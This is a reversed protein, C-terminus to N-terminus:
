PRKLLINFEDDEEELIRALQKNETVEILFKKAEDRSLKRITRAFETDDIDLLCELIDLDLDDASDEELMEEFLKEFGFVTKQPLELCAKEHSHTSFLDDCIEQCKKDKQCPNGTNAQCKEEQKDPDSTKPSTREIPPPPPEGSCNVLVYTALLFLVVYLFSLRFQYAPQSGTWFATGHPDLCAFRTAISRSKEEIKDVILSCLRPSFDRGRPPRGSITRVKQVPLSETLFNSFLYLAPGTARCLWCRHRPASPPPTLNKEYSNKKM